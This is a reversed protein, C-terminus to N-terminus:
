VQPVANTFYTLFKIKEGGNVTNKMLVHMHVVVYLTLSIKPIHYHADPDMFHIQCRTSGYFLEPGWKALIVPGNVIIAHVDPIVTTHTVFAINIFSCALTIIRFKQEAM